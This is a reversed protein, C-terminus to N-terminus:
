SHPNRGELPGEQMLVDTWSAQTPQQSTAQPSGSEAGQSTKSDTGLATDSDSAKDAEIAEFLYNLRDM